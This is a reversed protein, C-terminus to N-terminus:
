TEFFRRALFILALSCVQETSVVWLSPRVADERFHVGTICTGERKLLLQTHIIRYMFVLVVSKIKIGAFVQRLSRDRLLDGSFLFVAGNGLGVALESLDELVGMCTVPVQFFRHVHSSLHGIM